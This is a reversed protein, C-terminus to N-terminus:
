GKMRVHKKAYEIVVKRYPEVGVSYSKVGKYKKVVEHIIKREFSFMPDLVVKGKNQMVERVANKAISELQKKRKERYEGADIVVSLKVDSLRNVFITLIHQLAGLTKGHKGILRGVNSGRVKVYFTRGKSTVNIGVDLDANKVIGLLFEKIRREYYERKITLDVVAEKSFFGLIGKFGKEVIEYEFEGEKLDYEKVVKEIAEEVTSATSRIKKM